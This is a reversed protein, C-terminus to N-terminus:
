KRYPWTEVAFRAKYDHTDFVYESLSRIEHAKYHFSGNAVFGRLRIKAPLAYLDDDSVARVYTVNGDDNKMLTPIFYYNPVPDGLWLIESLVKGDPLIEKDGVKIRELDERKLSKFSINLEVTETNGSFFGVDTVKLRGFYKDLMKEEVLGKENFRIYYHLAPIIIALIFIIIFIDLANLIGFLKANKVIKM